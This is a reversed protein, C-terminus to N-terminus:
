KSSKKKTLLTKCKIYWYYSNDRLTDNSSRIYELTDKALQCRDEVLPEIEGSTALNDYSDEIEQIIRLVVDIYPCTNAPVGPSKKKLNKIKKSM